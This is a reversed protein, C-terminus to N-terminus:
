GSISAASLYNAQQHGHSATLTLAGDSWSDHTVGGTYTPSVTWFAQETTIEPVMHAPYGALDRPIQEEPIRV